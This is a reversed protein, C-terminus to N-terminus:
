PDETEYRSVRPGDPTEVFSVVSQGGPQLVQCRLSPADCVVVSEADSEDAGEATVLPLEILWARPSATLPVESTTEGHHVALAGEAIAGADGSALRMLVDYLARADIPARSPAPDTAPSAVEPGASGCAALSVCVSIWVVAARM